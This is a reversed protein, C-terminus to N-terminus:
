RDALKKIVESHTEIVHKAASTVVRVGDPSDVPLPLPKRATERPVMTVGYAKTLRELVQQPLAPLSKAMTGSRAPFDNSPNQGVLSSYANQRDLSQELANSVARRRPQPRGSTADIRAASVQANLPVLAKKRVIAQARKISLSKKKPTM